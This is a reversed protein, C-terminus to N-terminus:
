SHIGLNMEAISPAVYLPLVSFVEALTNKTVARSIIREAALPSLDIQSANEPCYNIGYHRFDSFDSDKEIIRLTKHVDDSYGKSLDSIDVAFVSNRIYPTSLLIEEDSHSKNESELILSELAWQFLSIGVIPIGSFQSTTRFFAAAVRLGTLSGPGTGVALIDLDTLKLDASRLMQDAFLSIKSAFDQKTNWCFKEPDKGNGKGIIGIVDRSSADLFMFKRASESM